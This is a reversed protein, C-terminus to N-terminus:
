TNRQRLNAIKICSFTRGLIWETLSSGVSNIMIYDARPGGILGGPIGNCHILPTGRINSVRTGASLVRIPFGTVPEPKFQFGRTRITFCFGHVRRTRNGTHKAHGGNFIGWSIELFREFRCFVPDRVQGYLNEVGTSQVRAQWTWRKSIRPTLM